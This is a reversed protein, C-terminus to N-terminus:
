NESIVFRIADFLHGEEGSLAALATVALLIPSILDTTSSFMREVTYVVEEPVGSRAAIADLDKLSDDRLALDEIEWLQEARVTRLITVEQDWTKDQHTSMMSEGYM